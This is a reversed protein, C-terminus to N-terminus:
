PGPAVYSHDESPLPADPLGEKFLARSCVAVAIDGRGRGPFRKCGAFDPCPLGSAETIVPAYGRAPSEGPRVTRRRPTWDTALGGMFDLAKLVRRTRQRAKRAAGM